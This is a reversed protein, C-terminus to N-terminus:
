LNVRYSLNGLTEFVGGLLKVPIYSGSTNIVFIIAFLHHCFYLDADNVMDHLSVKCYKIKLLSVPLVSM